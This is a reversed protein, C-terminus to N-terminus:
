AAKRRQPAGSARAGTRAARKATASRKGTNAHPIRM